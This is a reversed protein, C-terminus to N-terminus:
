YTVTGRAAAYLKVTPWGLGFFPRYDHAISVDVQCGPANCAVGKKIGWPDAYTVTIDGGITQGSFNAYSTIADLVAPPNNAPGSPSPSLSGHTIAFRVGEKASDAVVNYAYFLLVLEIFAVFLLVIFVAMLLFEVIAQGSQKPRTTKMVVREGPPPVFFASSRSDM